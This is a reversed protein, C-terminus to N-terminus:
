KPQVITGMLTLQGSSTAQAYAVFYKKATTDYAVWQEAEADATTAIGFSQGSLEGTGTAFQGRVNVNTGGDLDDALFVVLFNGKDRDFAAVPDGCAQGTDFTQNENGTPKGVVSLMRHNLDGTDSGKQEM